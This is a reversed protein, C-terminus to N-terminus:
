HSMDAFALRPWDRIFDAAGTIVTLGEADEEPCSSSFEGCFVHIYPKETRAALWEKPRTPSIVRLDALSGFRSLAGAGVGTARGCLVLHRVDDPVAALESALGYARRRGDPSVAFGRLLRGFSHGGMVEPDCVVWAFPAGEGVVLRTGSYSKCIPMADVPRFFEGAAAVAGSMLCGALLAASLLVHRMRAAADFAFTRLAPLLMALPILCVLWEEAVSSFFAAVIFSAFVALPLSDGRVKLRVIGLGVVFALGCLYCLRGPWGLEVLWTLHSNVLTRYREHRSLPQYWGMFADGAAGLGWGGPADAVMSPVYQWVLLRNGVSADASPLSNAMRGSFGSWVAFGVLVAAALFAPACRRLKGCEERLGVLLVIAGLLFALLGGRSFTHVLGFGVAGAFAGSTWRVWARKSRLSAAMLVLLLCALIAAAKNPNDLGFGWRHIGRYLFADAVLYTM